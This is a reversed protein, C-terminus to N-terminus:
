KPPNELRECAVEDKLQCAKKFYPAAEKEGEPGPKYKVLLNATYVCGPAHNAKCSVKFAEIAQGVMSQHESSDNEWEYHDGRDRWGAKYDVDRGGLYAKGTKFCDLAREKADCIDRCFEATNCEGDPINMREQYRRDADSEIRLFSLISSCGSASVVIAIVTLSRFISSFKM